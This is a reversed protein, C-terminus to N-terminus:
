ERPIPMWWRHPHLESHLDVWESEPRAHDFLPRPDRHDYILDWLGDIPDEIEDGDVFFANTDIAWSRHFAITLMVAEAMRLPRPVLGDELVSRLQAASDHARHLWPVTAHLRAPWPLWDFLFDRHHGGAGPVLRGGAALSLEEAATSGIAELSKAMVTAVYSDHAVIDSLPADRYHDSRGFWIVFKDNFAEDTRGGNRLHDLAGEKLKLAFELRRETEAHFRAGAERELRRVTSLSVGAADALQQQTMARTERIMRVTGAVAVTM